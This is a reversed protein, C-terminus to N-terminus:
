TSRNHFAEWHLALVDILVEGILLVLIPVDISTLLELLIELVLLLGLLIALLMVSLGLRSLLALSQNVEISEPYIDSLMRDLMANEVLGEKGRFKDEAVGVM